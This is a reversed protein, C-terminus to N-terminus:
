PHQSSAPWGLSSFCNALVLFILRPFGVTKEFQRMDPPAYALLQQGVWQVTYAALLGFPIGAYVPMGAFIVM